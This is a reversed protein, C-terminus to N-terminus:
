FQGRCNAAVLARAGRGHGEPQRVILARLQFFQRRTHRQTGIDPGADKRFLVPPPAAAGPRHNLILFEHRFRQSQKALRPDRIVEILKGVFCVDPGQAHLLLFAALNMFGVPMDQVHASQQHGCQPM